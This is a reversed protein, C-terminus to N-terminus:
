DSWEIYNQVEVGSAYPERYYVIGRTVNDRSDILAYDNHINLISAKDRDVILFDGNDNIAIDVIDLVEWGDGGSPSPFYPYVMNNSTDYEVDMIRENYTDLRYIGDDTPLISGSTGSIIYLFDDYYVLGSVSRGTNDRAHSIWPRGLKENTARNVVGSAISKMSPDYMNPAKFINWKGITSGDTTRVKYLVLNNNELMWYSDTDKDYAIGEFQLNTTVKFQDETSTLLGRHQIDTSGSIPLITRPHIYENEVTYDVPYPDADTLLTGFSQIGSVTFETQANYYTRVTYPPPLGLGSHVPIYVNSIGSLAPTFFQTIDEGGKYIFVSGSAGNRFYPDTTLNYTFAGNDLNWTQDVKDVYNFQITAVSGPRLDRPDTSLAFSNGSPSRAISHGVLTGNYDVPESTFIPTSIHSQTRWKAASTTLQKPYLFKLYDYEIYYNSNDMPALNYPNDGSIAVSTSTIFDTTGSTIHVQGGPIAQAVGSGDLNLYDYVVVTDALPNFELTHGSTSTITEYKGASAYNQTGIGYDYADLLVWSTNYVITSNGDDISTIINRNLIYVDQEPIVLIGSADIKSWGRVFTVGTIDGSTHPPVVDNSSDYSLRTPIGRLFAGQDNTNILQITDADVGIGGSPIMHSVRLDLQGTIIASPPINGSATDHYTKWVRQIENQDGTSVHFNDRTTVIDKSSSEAPNGFLGNFFQYGVSTPGHIEMWGPLISLTDNTESSDHYTRRYQNIKTPLDIM